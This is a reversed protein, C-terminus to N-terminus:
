DKLSDSIDYGLEDQIRKAELKAEARRRKQTKDLGTSKQVSKFTDNDFDMDLPNNLEAQLDEGASDWQSNKM